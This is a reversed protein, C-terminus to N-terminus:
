RRACGAIDHFVGDGYTWVCGTDEVGGSQPVGGVCYLLDSYLSCAFGGRFGSDHQIHYVGGVRSRRRFYFGIGGAEVAAFYYIYDILGIDCAM